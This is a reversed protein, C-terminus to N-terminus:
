PAGDQESPLDEESVVLPVPTAILRGEVSLDVRRELARALDDAEPNMNADGFHTVGAAGVLRGYRFFVISGSFTGALGERRAEFRYGFAEDGLDPVEFAVVLEYRIGDAVQGETLRFEEDIRGLYSAAGSAGDFLDVSSYAGFVGSRTTRTSADLYTLEYGSIRGLAVLDDAILPLVTFDGAAQENDVAGSDEPALTLTRGLAGLDNQPLVMTALHHEGITATSPSSDEDWPLNDPLNGCAAALLLVPLVLLSRLDPRPM